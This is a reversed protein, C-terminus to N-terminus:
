GGVRKVKFGQAALLVMVREIHEGQLELVGDKLTGGTGCASRLQKGLATLEAMALPVGTVVTVVKGARGQTSRRVRVIGDGPPLAAQSKCICQTSAQACQPCVRGVETSYVLTSAKPAAPSAM